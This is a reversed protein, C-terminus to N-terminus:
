PKEAPTEFRGLLKLIAVVGIFLVAALWPIRHGEPILLVLLLFTGILVGVLDLSTSHRSSIRKSLLVKGVGLLVIALLGGSLFYIRKHQMPDRMVPLAAAHLAAAAKAPAPAGAVAHAPELHLAALAAASPVVEAHTVEVRVVPRMRDDRPVDLIKELVEEGSELRGFVTYKGDLQPAPRLLICFSTEASEPDQEKRAMSLVGRVHKLESPEIPLRHILKSQAPTLPKERDSANSLQIVFGPRVRKFATTDYVGARVLALFQAVTKPAAKPYLAFVMDGAVTHFVVREQAPDEGRAALAVTMAALLAARV